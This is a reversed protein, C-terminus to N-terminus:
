EELFAALSRITPHKFLDPISMEKDTLEQLRNFVRIISVSDGGIDMFGDHLGVSQIGLTEQWITALTLELHSWEALSAEDAGLPGKGPAPLSHRDIKGNPLRPLEDLLVFEAPVAAGPLQKRVFERLESIEPTGSGDVTLYSVLRRHEQEDERVTVVAERVAPHQLLVAEVEELEIRLGRIKVQHDVRGLVEINGDPLYRAVDGTKYLRTGPVDSLPHPIFKEATLGPHNLYGRALGVGGIHLEAQVGVPVPELGADLICLQTNDIPRGISVQNRPQSAECRHVSSWVSAETAGCENFLSAGELMQHHQEVLRVPCPEGAVIVTRLSALQRPRSQARELLLAYVSPICLLHSIRKSDILECLHPVDLAIDDPPLVLTGGQTLTWYIGAVSSDFAFSSLLLFSSVSGRYYNWRATTSNVLGEHSVLVGKPNGTSGSTYIVYALGDPTAVSRPNERRNADVVDPEPDLYVVEAGCPPEDWISRQTLLVAVAADELVYSLRQRPYSPDLPVYAGGAKLVALLAVIMEVSRKLCVGVLVEPGVALHRLHHALANARENLERYTVSQDAFVLAVADPTQAAQFEFLQHICKDEPYPTRTRNWDGLIHRRESPTLLPLRALTQDPNVASAELITQLHGSMRDVTEPDFLDANYEWVGQLGQPTEEVSLTLDFRATVSGVEMSSLTVGSLNAERKPTNQLVFMVQFLPSYSLSREPQLAGVLYEFPVEQHDYAQRAVLSVRQLLQRFTLNGGLETRLVLTNVFYGILQEVEAQNRNAVVTGVPIDTQNSYRYLLTKFGALLTMFLTVNERRSLARLEGSLDNALTFRRRAGRFTQVDPRPDSVSLQLLPPLDSLQQTWYGLQSELVEEEMRSRQWLAYDAYQIPLEPLPSPRGARFANYLETLESLFVGISWGDLIIHHSTVSLIHEREGLKLLAVRLLPGEALNFPHRSEADVLRQLEAKQESEPWISLDMVPLKRTQAPAIEQVPNEGVTRFTTRLIEHRRVIEDISQELVPIDLAGVLRFAAFENYASSGPQVQEALWLGHQSLSVPLADQGGGRRTISPEQTEVADQRLARLVQARREHPLNNILELQEKSITM